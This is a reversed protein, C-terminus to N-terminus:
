RCKHAHLGGPGQGWGAWGPGTGRWSLTVFRLFLPQIEASRPLLAVRGSVIGRELETTQLPNVGILSQFQRAHGRGRRTAAASSDM